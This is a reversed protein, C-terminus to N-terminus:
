GARHLQRHDPIPARHGGGTRAFQPTSSLLTCFSETERESRSSLRSLERVATYAAHVHADHELVNRLEGLAAAVEADVALNTREEPDRPSTTCSGSRRWRRRTTSSTTTATSSGCSRRMATVPRCAPSSRSSRPRSRGGARLAQRHVPQHHPPGRSIQDETMFYVPPTSSCRRRGARRAPPRPRARGAAPDRRPPARGRDAAAECTSVPSVSCRPCCTSTAPRRDAVGARAPTSAPARSSCRSASRRTTRTTGSRCCAATRASCTATIPPSCWSRTTPSAAVGRARRPHAHDRRRRAEHLFHYLRRYAGDTAQPYLLKRGCRRSSASATPDAPSRTPRRRRRRSRPSPTTSPRPVRAPGVGVGSFAIDHPNVFSAVALWPVDDDAAAIEGFLDVVQDAFMATAHHVRHRGQRRRATRPRDLGLVRLPRPSRRARYAEVAAPTSSATPTTSGCARTPARSPAPRPALHAVQRPLAHPLRRRPVLRGDHARHRSRALAHAPDTPQRRWATPTPSATCRRTSGPSSRRGARRHVRDRGRLPPAARPEARAPARPAPLQTRRFEALADMEYPPPYREEDTMIFLVNPRTTTM